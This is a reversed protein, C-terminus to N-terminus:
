LRHGPYIKRINTNFYRGRAEAQALGAYVERPVGRYEYRQGTSFTLVLAEEDAKYQICQFLGTSAVVQPEIQTFTTRWPGSPNELASWAALVVLALSMSKM